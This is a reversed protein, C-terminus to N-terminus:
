VVANGNQVVVEGDVGVSEKRWEAVVGEAEEVLVGVAKRVDELVTRESGVVFRICFVGNLVTQTLLIDNRSTLRSYLSKTLTNLTELTATPETSTSSPSSALASPSIRFVSLALSPATVLELLKTQKLETIFSDNMAICRKIYARFGEAGYSRFVFWLKLSRFRRGLALHWNRYDIVLGSDGEKTRLFPPTIDLAETLLTRDRVWLTSCDFNVLGWKHFNTCFSTAIENIEAHYLQDRYEPCSLAVGAWAADIHIWLSPHDKAVQKIEPLNDIAGSSTTGVTAILMFPHKGNKLDEDLAARLAEGRLSYGDEAKVEIARVNLGLIKAAKLGLSHTQTTTYLVLSEHPVTPHTRAYLSRAAVVATLASDSATTQIAGGGKSSSNHFDSHLGLLKAAWDMMLVELETCAPSSAWNFGPNCASSVLLDAIMGEFTCATPYFGFFSPHQWHTLGPLILKTYDDLIHNFPESSEPLTKPIHHSLYGPSVSPKVPLSSLSYYYDCIRDIAAYGAKRFEEIDLM